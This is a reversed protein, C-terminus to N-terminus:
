KASKEKSLKLLEQFPKFKLPEKPREKNKFKGEQKTTTTTEVEAELKTEESM